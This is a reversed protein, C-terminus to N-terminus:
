AALRTIARVPPLDLATIVGATARATQEIAAMLVAATAEDSPVEARLEFSGAPEGEIAITASTSSTAREVVKLSLTLSPTGPGAHYGTEQVVSTVRGDAASSGTVSVPPWDPEPIGIAYALLRASSAIGRREFVGDVVLQEFTPLDLGIGSLARVGSDRTQSVAVVCEVRMSELESCPLSLVVPLIETALGSGSAIAVVTRDVRQAHRDLAEAEERGWPCILEECTTVVASGADLSSRIAPAADALRDVGALLVVDPKERKLIESLGPPEVRGAVDIGAERLAAREIADGLEGTAAVLIRTM